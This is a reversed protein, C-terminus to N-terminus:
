GPSETAVLKWNPDPSSTERAFTWIDIVQQTRKADGAVVAGSKDRTVSILDSVFRIAVQAVGQRVGAEALEAESIGFKQEVAHGAAERETIVSSFSEFVDRSLLGKLINRNGEAFATVVMEYAQKAGRVFAEPDFSRDARWVEVLGNGLAANGGALGRLKAEVTASNDAPATADAPAPRDRRPLTVVNDKAG